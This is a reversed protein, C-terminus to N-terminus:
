SPGGSRLLIRIIEAWTTHVSETSRKLHDTLMEYSDASTVMAIADVLHTAAIADLAALETEFQRDIQDRALQVTVAFVIPISESKAFRTRGALRFPKMIQVSRVRVKVFTQIRDDLPGEGRNAIMIEPLSQALVRHFAELTLEALDDFHRFVSRRAVGSREVVEEITGTKGEQLLEILADIVRDRNALRNAVRGDIGDLARPGLHARVGAEFEALTQEATRPEM